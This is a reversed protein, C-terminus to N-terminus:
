AARGDTSQSDLPVAVLDIVGGRVATVVDAVADDPVALVIGSQGALGLGEEQVASVQAATLIRRPVAVSRAADASSVWVDVVDGAVLGAPYHGPDVPVTVERGAQWTSAGVAAAPVLEGQGIGRLVQGTVPGDVALYGLDATARPVRTAALSAEDLVQGAPLDRTARWVEVTDGSSALVRAGLLVSAVVLAVGLWMRLDRWGPAHLRNAPAIPSAGAQGTSTARGRTDAQVPNRLLSM